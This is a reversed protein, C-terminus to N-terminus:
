ELKQNEFGIQNKQESKKAVAIAKCLPCPHNGDFTKMVADHFSSSQLNGALMTTWAVTQLLAWHASLTAVLSFVICVKGLRLLM